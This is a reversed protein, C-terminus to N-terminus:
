AQLNTSAYVYYMGVVFFCARWGGRKSRRVPNGKLDVTGDKTYDDVVGEEVGMSTTM